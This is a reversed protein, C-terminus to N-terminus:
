GVGTTLLVVAVVGVSIAAGGALLARRPMSGRPLTPAYLRAALAVEVPCLALYALLALARRGPDLGPLTLVVAVAAVAGLGILLGRLWRPWDTRAVGLGAPVITPFMAAGAAMFCGLSLVIGALRVALVTRPGRRARVVTVLGAMTGLVAFIGVIFGTGAWSFEPATSVLRMWARLVVGYCVGVALGLLVTRAGRTRAPAPASVAVTM